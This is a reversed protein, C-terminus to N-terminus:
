QRIPRVFQDDRGSQTAAPNLKVCATEESLMLYSRMEAVIQKHLDLHVRRFLRPVPPFVTIRLYNVPSGEESPASQFIDVDMQFQTKRARNAPDVALVMLSSYDNGCERISAKNESVFGLVKNALLSTPTTTRFEESYLFGGQRKRWCVGTAPSREFNAEITEASEPVASAREVRNRGQQKASYLAKDARIFFDTIDEGDRLESVGFSASITKGNLMQQPTRNLSLRIQEAREVASDLDCNACLIVFEEGGYRAVVDRSRVFSKLAQAFAVLAQDGIHHGYTDNVYKFYDIDCIILCCKSETARHSTVYERLHREFEARNAVHTLPDLVSANYLDSLQQKLDANASLDLLIVVAGQCKQNRIVPIVTLEIRVERGSRGVLGFEHITKKKSQMCESVPCQKEEVKVGGSETLGLLEPRLQTGLMSTATLGSILEAGRNWCTIKRDTDVFIVGERINEMLCNRYQIELDSMSNFEHINKSNDLLEKLESIRNDIAEVREVPTTKEKEPVTFM